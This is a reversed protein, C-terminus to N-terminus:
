KRVDEPSSKLAEAEKGRVTDAQQAVEDCMGAVGIGVGDILSDLAAGTAELGDRRLTRFLAGREMLAAMHARMCKFTGTGHESACARYTPIMLAVIRSSVHAGTTNIRITGLTNLLEDSEERVLYLIEREKTSIAAILDRPVTLGQIRRRLRSMERKVGEELIEAQRDLEGELAPWHKQLAKNMGDMIEANWNRYDKAGTTHEGNHRCWAAYSTWHWGEWEQSARKAKQCFAGDGVRMPAAIERRLAAEIATRHSEIKLELKQRLNPICDFPIEPLVEQNLAAIWVELRQVLSGMEVELFYNSAKFQAEAVKSHCFRRLDPIGSRQAAFIRAERARYESGEYDENGVCYVHFKNKGGLDRYRRSLKAKVDKSRANVYLYKKRRPRQIEPFTKSKRKLKAIEYERASRNYAADMTKKAAKTTDKKAVDSHKKEAGPIQYVDAHTCIVTISKNEKLRPGLSQKLIAEVSEDSTVRKINAVVFVEDCGILYQETKKVRALNTDRYGPLDALIIGSMLVQAKLYIRVVETLPWLGEQMFLGVKENCEIATKATSVWKGDVAGPPWRLESALQKLTDLIRCFAGDLTDQLYVPSTEERGPFISQLTALAVESQRELSQYESPSDALEAQLGQQYPQRYSFLLEELQEEM